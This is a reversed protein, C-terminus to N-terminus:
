KPLVTFTGQMVGWHGPFSCLFKYYGAKPTEFVITVQEGGGIVKTHTIVQDNKDAPIYDTDRAAVAATGFTAVDAGSNLLVWNHGMAEKPMQGVHKLTLSVIQGETVKLEDKSFQMNDNAEIILAISDSVVESSPLAETQTGESDSMSEKQSGGGCALLSIILMSLFAYTVKRM